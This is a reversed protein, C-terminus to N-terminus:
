AFSQTGTHEGLTIVDERVPPAHTIRAQDGGSRDIRHLSPLLDSDLGLQEGLVRLIVTVVEHCSTMFTELQARRRTITEPHQLPEDKYKGIRLIDDKSM